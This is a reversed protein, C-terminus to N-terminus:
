LPMMDCRRPSTFQENPVPLWDSRSGDLCSPHRFMSPPPSTREDPDLSQDRCDAVVLDPEILGAKCDAAFPQVFRPRTLARIRVQLDPLGAKWYPSQTDVAVQTCRAAHLIAPGPHAQGVAADRCSMMWNGTDMVVYVRKSDPEVFTIAEEAEALTGAGLCAAVLLIYWRDHTPM